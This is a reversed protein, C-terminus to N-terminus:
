LSLTVGSKDLYPIYKVILVILFNSFNKYERIAYYHYIGYKFNNWSQRHIAIARAKGVVKKM